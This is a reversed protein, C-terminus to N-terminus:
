EDLGVLKIPIVIRKHGRLIELKVVDGIQKNDLIDDLDAISNVKKGDVKVIIDGFEITGDAYITAPILPIAAAPTNAIVGLVAVGNIGYVDHLYENVREDVEIGISPKIYHGFLIIKTVVRKVLNIPIAFGIGVSANIPSYIASSVGVVKGSSDLMVGGSNGPNIAADTQIAESIYSGDSSPVRRHLASVIGKTMTWSLGFPNGIVYVNQGVQLKDSNGLSVPKLEDKPANIQLVAIDRKPYVGVLSAAYSKGNFLKVRASNAGRIVHYNTVIHGKKDWVFGSGSGKPITYRTLTNYDIIKSSTSIYVVSEKNKKFIAINQKEEQNLGNACSAFFLFFLFGIWVRKM